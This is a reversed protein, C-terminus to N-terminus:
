PQALGEQWEPVREGTNVRRRHRFRLPSDAKANVDIEEEFHVACPLRQYEIWHPGLVETM